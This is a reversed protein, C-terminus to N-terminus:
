KGHRPIRYLVMIGNYEETYPFIRVQRSEIREYHKEIWNFAIEKKDETNKTGLIWYMWVRTYHSSIHRDWKELDKETLQLENAHIKYMNNQPAHWLIYDPRFQRAPLKDNWYYELFVMYPPSVNVFDGPRKNQEVYQIISELNEPRNIRSWYISLFYLSFVAYSILLFPGIWNIRRRLNDAGLGLVLCFMPFISIYYKSTYDVSKFIMALWGILIAGGAVAACLMVDFRYRPHLFAMAAMFFVFAIILFLVPGPVAHMDIYQGAVFQYIINIIGGVPISALHKLGSSIPLSQALGTVGSQRMLLIKPIIALVPAAHSFLLPLFLTGWRRRTALVFLGLCATVILAYLHTFVSLTLAATYLVLWGWRGGRNIKLLAILWLVGFFMSLAPYRLMQAFEPLYASLSMVAIAGLAARPHYMQYMAVTFLALTLISLLLSLGHLAYISTGFVNLWYHSIVAPMATHQEVRYYDRIAPVNHLTAAHYDFGEDCFLVKDGLHYCRTFLGAALVVFLLIKHTTSLPTTKM